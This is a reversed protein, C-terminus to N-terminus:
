KLILSEIHSAIAEPKTAPSFRKVVRGERDILFKTFNWKISNTILGKAEGKLFKFMPHENTGNVEVKGM